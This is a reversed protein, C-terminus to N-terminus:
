APLRITTLMREVDSLAEDFRAADATYTVVWATDGRVTWVQMFRIETGEETSHGQVKHAPLGSLTTSSQRDITRDSERLEKLGQATLDALTVPQGLDNRIINVNRRFPVGSAKDVFVLLPGSGGGPQVTWANPHEFSVGSPDRYTTARGSTRPTTTTPAVEKPPGDNQAKGSVRRALLNALRDREGEPFPSGTGSAFIGGLARGHRVFVLDVYAGVSEGDATADIDVRVGESEDVGRLESLSSTKINEVVVDGDEEIAEKLGDKFCQSGMGAELDRFAKRAEAETEAFFVGSGVQLEEEEKSFDPGEAGRPKPEAILTPNNAVCKDLADDDDEDDAPDQTYGPVDAATLVMREARAKDEAVPPVEEEGGGGCAAAGMSLLLVLGVVM